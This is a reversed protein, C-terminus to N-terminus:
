APKLGRRLLESKVAAVEKVDRGGIVLKVKPSGFLVGRSSHHLGYLQVPIAGVGDSYLIDPNGVAALLDEFSSLQTNAALTMQEHVEFRAKASVLAGFLSASPRANLEVIKVERSGNAHKVVLYDWGVFGGIRLVNACYNAGKRMEHELLEKIETSLVTSRSGHFGGQEDTDQIFDGFIEYSGDRNVLTINSGVMEREGLPQSLDNPVRGDVEILMPMNEPMFDNPDWFAEIAEQSMTTHAAADLWQQHVKARFQYIREAIFAPHKNNLNVAEVMDGGVGRPAKLWLRQAGSLRESARVVDLETRVIAALSLNLGHLALDEHLRVKNNAQEPDFRQVPTAGLQEAQARVAPTPFSAVFLHDTLNIGDRVAAAVPDTFGMGLSQCNAEPSPDVEILQEPSSVLGREILYSTIGPPLTLTLAKEGRMVAAAALYNVPFDLHPTPSIHPPRTPLGHSDNTQASTYNHTIVVPKDTGFGNAAAVGRGLAPFALAPSLPLPRQDSSITNTLSM